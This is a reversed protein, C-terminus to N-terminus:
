IFPSLNCLHFCISAPRSSKILALNGDDTFKARCWRSSLADPFVHEEQINEKESVSGHTAIVAPTPNVKLPEREKMLCQTKKTTKLFM